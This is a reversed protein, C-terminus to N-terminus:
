HRTENISTSHTSDQCPVLTRQALDGGNEPKHRGLARRYSARAAARPGLVLWEKIEQFGVNRAMGTTKVLLSACQSIMATMMAACETLSADASIGTCNNAAVHNDSSRAAARSSRPADETVRAAGRASATVLGTSRVARGAQRGKHCSSRPM